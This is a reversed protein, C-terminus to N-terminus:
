IEDEKRLAEHAVQYAQGYEPSSIDRINDMRDALCTPCVLREDMGPHRPRIYVMAGCCQNCGVERERELKRQLEATAADIASQIIPAMQGSNFQAELKGFEPISACIYNAAEVAEKSPKM